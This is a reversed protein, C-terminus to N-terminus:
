GSNPITVHRHWSAHLFWRRGATSTNGSRSVDYRWARISGPRNPGYPGPDGGRSKSKYPGGGPRLLPLGLSGYNSSIKRWQCNFGNFAKGGRSNIVFNRRWRYFRDFVRRQRNFDFIFAEPPQFGEFKHRHRNFVCFNEGKATFVSL